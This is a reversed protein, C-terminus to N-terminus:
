QAHDTKIRVRKDGIRYHITKQGNDYDGPRVIRALKAQEEMAAIAAQRDGLQRKAYQAVFLDEVVGWQPWRGILADEAKKKGIGPCGPYGDASDGTLTQLMWQYDARAPSVIGGSGKLPSWYRGPVTLMDKDSSVIVSGEGSMVGMVDDAELGPITRCEHESQAHALLEWFHVPKPSRDTKYTPSVGRRFLKRDTPSLCLLYTDCGADRTWSEIFSEFTNLAEAYTPLRSESTGSDWDVAEQRIVCAKFLAEDGDILARM